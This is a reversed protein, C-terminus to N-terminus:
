EKRKPVLNRLSFGAKKVAKEEINEEAVAVENVDQLRNKEVNEMLQQGAKKECHDKAGTKRGEQGPKAAMDVSKEPVVYTHRGELVVQFKTEENILDRITKYGFESEDFGPYKLQLQSKIGGLEAHKGNKEEQQVIEHIFTKIEGLKERDTQRNERKSAERSGLSNKVESSKTKDEAKLAKGEEPEGGWVAKKTGVKLSGGGLSAKKIAKNDKKVTNQKKGKSFNEQKGEKKGKKLHEGSDKGDSKKASSSKDKEAKVQKKDKKKEPKKDAKKEADASKERSVTEEALEDFDLYQDCVKELRKSADAKGIGIM